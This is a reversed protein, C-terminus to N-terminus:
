SQKNSFCSPSHGSACTCLYAWKSTLTRFITSFVQQIIILCEM